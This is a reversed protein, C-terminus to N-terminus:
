KMKILRIMPPLGALAGLGLFAFTNEGGLMGKSHFLYDFVL